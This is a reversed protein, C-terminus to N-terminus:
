PEPSLVRPPRKSAFEQVGSGSGQVRTRGLTNQTKPAAEEWTVEQGRVLREAGEIVVTAGDGLLERGQDTEPEVAYEDELRVTLTVPLPYAVDSGRGEDRVAVWLTSGDPRVLVADKPVVLAERQPGTAVAATVSMGVKLKGGQDDLRVRVPFTRSASPGYPTVSVVTGAAEEGLPDVRIALTGGVRIRNVVSEPVMLLADVWGRSVVDVIPTGPVVHGGLEAHKAVVVGDFSPYIKSRKQREQEERVAAETEALKAQLELVIARKAELESDTIANKGRLKRYRELEAREHRLRADTAAYLAQGRVLAWQSWVDDIQALLTKGTFVATGEEVQMEVIKGTVESAITVKQVEILRGVISRQPQVSKSQATGVRILAKPPGNAPGESGPDLLELQSRLFDPDRLQEQSRRWTVLGGVLCGALLASLTLSAVLVLRKQRHHTM